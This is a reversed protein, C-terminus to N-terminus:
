YFKVCVWGVLLSDNQSRTRPYSNINSSNQGVAENLAVHDNSECIREPISSQLSTNPIGNSTDSTGNHNEQSPRGLIASSKINVIFPLQTLVPRGNRGDEIKGNRLANKNGPKNSRQNKRRKKFPSEIIEEESVLENKIRQFSSNSAMVSPVPEVTFDDLFESQPEQKVHLQIGTRDSADIERFPVFDM